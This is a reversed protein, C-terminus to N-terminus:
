GIAKGDKRNGLKERVGSKRETVRSNGRNGSKGREKVVCERNDM